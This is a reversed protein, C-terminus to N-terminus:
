PLVTKSCCIEGKRKKMKRKEEERERKKRRGKKGVKSPSNNGLKCDMAKVM